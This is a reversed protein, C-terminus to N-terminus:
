APRIVLGALMLRTAVSALEVAETAAGHGEHALKGASGLTVLGHVLAWVTRALPVPDGAVFRGAAQGEVIAGVLVGFAGLGEGALDPHPETDMFTPGFMVQYPSPHEAGFRVYAEAMAVLPEVGSGGAAGQAAELDLRLRRFGEQAIRALLAAKSDFHRYLATRSVGVRRGVERLTLADVGEATIIEAAAAVLARGLDGHHYAGKAGSGSDAAM